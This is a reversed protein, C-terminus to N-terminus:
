KYTNSSESHLKILSLLTDTLTKNKQIFKESKREFNDYMDVLKTIKTQKDNTQKSLQSKDKEFTKL